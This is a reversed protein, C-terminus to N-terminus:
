FFFRYEIDGVKYFQGQKDPLRKAYRLLKQVDSQFLILCSTLVHLLCAFMHCAMTISLYMAYM